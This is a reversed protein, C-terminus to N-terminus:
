IAPLLVKFILFLIGIVILIAGLILIYLYVFQQKKAFIIFNDTQNKDYIVEIKDGVPLNTQDGFDSVKKITKGHYDTYTIEYNYYIMPFDDGSMQHSKKKEKNTIIASTKIGNQIIKKTKLFLILGSLFIVFGVLVFIGAIIMEKM